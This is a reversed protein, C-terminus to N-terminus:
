EITNVTEMASRLLRRNLLALANAQLTRLGHRYNGNAKGNPAGARAGHMRCVLKGRVSPAKCPQGSRKSTARCRAAAHARQMPNGSSKM